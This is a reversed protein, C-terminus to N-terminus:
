PQDGVIPAPEEGPSEPQPASRPVATAALEEPSWEGLLETSYFEADSLQKGALIDDPTPLRHTIRTLRVRNGREAHALHQAYMWYWTEPDDVDQVRESLMFHRHYLLRPKIERRPFVQEAVSGDPREVEYALLSGPGPEPAFFRHGQVMYLAEMYREFFRDRITSLLGREPVLISAPYIAVAAVHFALWLSIVPKLWEWRAADAVPGAETATAARDDPAATVPRPREIQSISV